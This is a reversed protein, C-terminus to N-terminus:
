NRLAGGRIPPALSFPSINTFHLFKAPTEGVPNTDTEPLIPMTPNRNINEVRFIGFLLEVAITTVPAWSPRNEFAESHHHISLSMQIVTAGTMWKWGYPSSALINQGTFVLSLM